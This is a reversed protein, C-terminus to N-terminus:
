EGCGGELAQRAIQKIHKVNGNNYVEAVPHSAIAELAGKLRTITQAAETMLPNVEFVNEQWTPKRAGQYLREVLEDIANPPTTTM